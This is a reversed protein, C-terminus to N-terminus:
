VTPLLAKGRSYEFEGAFLERSGLRKSRCFELNRKAEFLRGHSMAIANEFSIEATALDGKVALIVGINNHSLAADVSGLEISKAFAKAATYLDNLAITAFALDFWAEANKPELSVVRSFSDAAKKWDRKRTEAMGLAYHARAYDKKLLLAAKFEQIAPDFQELRFYCVGINFRLPARYGAALYENEARTLARKYNELADAFREEAASKTGESFLRTVMPSQASMSVTCFLLLGFLLYRM